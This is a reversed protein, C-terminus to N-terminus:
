DKTYGSYPYISFEVPRGSITHDPVHQVYVIRENAKGHMHLYGEAAVSVANEDADRRGSSLGGSLQISETKNRLMERANLTALYSNLYLKSVLLYFALFIFNGPMTIFSIMSATAVIAIVCGTNVTYAMLIRIVSDTRTYGTRSQYLLWSLIVTVSLDSATSVCFQLYFLNKLKSIQEFSKGHVQTKVTFVIGIIFQAFSVVAIWGTLYLNGKSLRYVRHAFLSRITFTTTSQYHSIIIVSWVPRLLSLLNGYNTVLYFYLTHANLCSDVTDLIWLFAVMLKLPPRDRNKIYTFYNYAQVSTIGWLAMGILGGIILAGLTTDFHMTSTARPMLSSPTTTAM